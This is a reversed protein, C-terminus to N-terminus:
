LALKQRLGARHQDQIGMAFDNTSCPGAAASTVFIFGDANGANLRGAEFCTSSM